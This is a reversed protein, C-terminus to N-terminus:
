YKGNNTALRNMLLFASELNYENEHLLIRYVNKGTLVPRIQNEFYCANLEISEDPSLYLITKGKNNKIEEIKQKATEKIEEHAQIETEFDFQIHVFTNCGQLIEGDVDRTYDDYKTKLLSSIYEIPLNIDKLYVSIYTDAYGSERISVSIKKTEIGNEKLFNKVDTSKM